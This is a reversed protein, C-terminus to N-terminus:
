NLRSALGAMTTVELKGQAQKRGVFELLKVLKGGIWPYIVLDWPHMFIHFIKKSNIARQLGLKARPLLTSPLRPECFYLSSPLEWLGDVLKPETPPALVIDLMGAVGSGAYAEGAIDALHLYGFVNLRHNLTVVVADGRKALRAGNSMPESGAGYIYAGGHLWVMVPRKGGDRVGPTWVNLVLCNEGQPLYPIHGFISEPQSKDVFRGLQPCIPGFDDADRVGTWKKPPLPPLFRRKGGTPGGYPVGKFTLVGDVPDGVGLEDSLCLLFAFAQGRHCKALRSVHLCSVGPEVLLRQSGHQALFGM